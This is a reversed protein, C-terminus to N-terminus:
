NAKRKRIERLINRQEKVRLLVEENRVHDTWSIKEMRRWCWMELTELHKQDVARLTIFTNYSFLYSNQADLQLDALTISRHVTLWDDLIPWLRPVLVFSIIGPLMLQQLLAEVNNRKPKLRKTSCCTVDSYQFVSSGRIKASHAASLV